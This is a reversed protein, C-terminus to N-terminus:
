MKSHLEELVGLFNSVGFTGLTVTGCADSLRLKLIRAKPLAEVLRQVRVDSSMWDSMLVALRDKSTVGDITAVDSKNGDADEVLWEVTVHDPNDSEACIFGKNLHWQMDTTLAGSDTRKENLVLMQKEDLSKTYIFRFVDGDFDDTSQDYKFEAQALM